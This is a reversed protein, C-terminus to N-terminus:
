EAAGSLRAVVDAEEAPRLLGRRAAERAADVLRDTMVRGQSALLAAKVTMTPLGEHFTRDSARVDRHVIEVTAPLAARVRRPAAVRIRRPQVHALRHLALVADDALVAGDGGFAVALAYEDLQGAPVELMRYVGRGLHSLAGRAALKRLEVAPVGLRAADSCTVIGHADFAHERLVQRYTM